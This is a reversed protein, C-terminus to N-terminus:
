PKLGYHKVRYPKRRTLGKLDPLMWCPEHGSPIHVHRTTGSIILSNRNHQGPWDFLTSDIGAKAANCAIIDARHDGDDVAIVNMIVFGEPSLVHQIKKFFDPTTFTRPVTNNTGFVDIVVADYKVRTAKLYSIGDRRVCPVEPPLGFYKRAIIFALPNIDIIRVKCHLQRLMTALTGGGCGIILVNRAHKQRIVDLMVHVYACLSIGKRNAQSHYCGNQVYSINGNKDRMIRIAGFPTTYKKLLAM